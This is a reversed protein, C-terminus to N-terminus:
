NGIPVGVPAEIVIESNYCTRFVCYLCFNFDRTIRMVETGTNDM